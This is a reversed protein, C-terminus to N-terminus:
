SESSAPNNSMDGELEPTAPISLEGNLEEYKTITQMLALALAKAHHLSMIAIAQEEIVPKRDVEKLQGFKIRCDWANFGMVSNNTYFEVYKESRTRPMTAPNHQQQKPKNPHNPM